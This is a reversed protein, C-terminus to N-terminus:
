VGDVARERSSCHIEEDTGAEGDGEVLHFQPGRVGGTGAAL